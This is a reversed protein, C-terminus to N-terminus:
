SGESAILTNMAKDISKHIKKLVTFLNDINSKTTEKKELHDTKVVDDVDDLSLAIAGETEVIKEESSVPHTNTINFEEEAREKNNQQLTTSTCLM